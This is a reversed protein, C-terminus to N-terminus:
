FNGEATQVCMIGHDRWMEVVQDRDDFVLTPDYGDARAKALLETKVINDKRADPMPKGRRSLKITVGDEERLWDDRIYIADYTIGHRELWDETVDLDIASRATMMVVTWGASKLEIVADIVHQIPKDADMNKRFVPWKYKPDAAEAALRRHTLDAVTGDVDCFLVGGASKDIKVLGKHVDTMKLITTM